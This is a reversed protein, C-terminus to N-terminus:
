ALEEETIDIGTLSSLKGRHEWGEERSRLSKIRAIVEERYIASRRIVKHFEDNELNLEARVNKWSLPRSGDDAIRLECVLRSIKRIEGDSTDRSFRQAITTRTNRVVESKKRQPTTDRLDTLLSLAAVIKTAQPTTLKYNKRKIKVNVNTLTDVDVEDIGVELAKDLIGNLVEVSKGSVKIESIIGLNNVIAARKETEAKVVKVAALEKSAARRGKEYATREAKEVESQDPTTKLRKELETRAAKAADLQKTMDALREKYAANEVEIPCEEVEDSFLQDRIAEVAKKAEIEDIEDLLEAVLSLHMRTPEPDVDEIGPHAWFNRGDKIRGTASRIDYHRDFKQRFCDEWYKRILHPINNVEIEVELDDRPECDLAMMILEKPTTDRVSLLCKYIFGRMADLYIRHAKRLAEENPYDKM